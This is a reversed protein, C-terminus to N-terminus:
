PQQRGLLQPSGHASAEQVPFPLELTEDIGLSRWRGFLETMQERIDALQEETLAWDADHGLHQMYYSTKSQNFDQATLQQDMTRELDFFGVILEAPDANAPIRGRPWPAGFDSLNWGDAVLGYFGLRYGLVTEVAYHTLDHLPSINPQRQWTQTGDPRECAFSHGGEKLKKFRIRLRPVVASSPASKRTM